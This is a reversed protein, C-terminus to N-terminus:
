GMEPTYSALDSVISSVRALSTSASLLDERVVALNM